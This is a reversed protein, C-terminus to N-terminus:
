CFEDELTKVFKILEPDDFIEKAWRIWISCQIKGEKKWYELGQLLSEVKDVQNVFRGEKTRGQEFDLWLNKIEKRMNPNLKSILRELSKLEEKYKRNYIQRKKKLSFGPWKKLIEKIEKKDKTLLMPDYPTLDPAYVECLDHILALKIVTELNLRKNRGLIWAIITTRFVHDAMTEPEKIEHVTWVRRKKRKLKGVEVFFNLIEKSEKEKEKKAM